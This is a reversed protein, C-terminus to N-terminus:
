EDKRLGPIDRVVMTKAVTDVKLVIEGAVAPILAVATEYVDNAPYFYVKEITGLARGTDTVVELGLLDWEYYADPELSPLQDRRIYLTTGRLTEAENRDVGEFAIRVQRNAPHMALVKRETQRGDSHRLTVSPLRKLVEPRDMLPTVKVEGRIGFPATIEGVLVLIPTDVENVVGRLDM